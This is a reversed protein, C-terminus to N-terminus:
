LNPMLQRSCRNSIDRDNMLEDGISTTLSRRSQYLPLTGRQVAVDMGIVTDFLRWPLRDGREDKVSLREVLSEDPFSQRMIDEGGISPMARLAM